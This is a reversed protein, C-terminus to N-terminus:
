PRASAHTGGQPGRRLGKDVPEPAVARRGGPSLSSSLHAPPRRVGRAGRGGNLAEAIAPSSLGEFVADGHKLWRQYMATFRPTGFVEHGVNLFGQTMPHVTEPRRGSPPARLYSQLEGITAPHLPTELEEHIVMQYADYVHDLPRPFVLRIRGPRRSESCRPMARFSVDPLTETWPETALYLLVVRGDRDVGIPFTRPPRAAARRTPSHDRRAPERRLDPMGDAARPVRGEGGRDDALRSRPTTLVADLLMLREVAARPSVPRRYRSPSRRHRICRSAICTICGRATTSASSRPPSDRRVLREFFANCKRGGHAIGAFSAYQRPVCVGAHRMVLVLFRAQRETFRSTSQDTRIGNTTPTM